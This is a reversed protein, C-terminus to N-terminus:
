ECKINAVRAHQNIVKRELGMRLTEDKRFGEWVNGPPNVIIENM